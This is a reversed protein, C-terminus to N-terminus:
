INCSEYIKKTIQYEIFLNNLDMYVKNLIEDNIDIENFNINNLYDIIQKRKNNIFFLNQKLFENIENQSFNKTNIIKELRMKFLKTKLEILNNNINYFDNIILKNPKDNSEIQNFLNNLNIIERKKNFIEKKIIEFEKNNNEELILSNLLHCSNDFDDRSQQYMAGGMLNSFFVGMILIYIYIYNIIFKYIIIIIIIHIIHIIHTIHIIHFIGFILYIEGLDM